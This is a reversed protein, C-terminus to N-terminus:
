CRRDVRTVRPLSTFTYKAGTRVARVFDRDRLVSEVWSCVSQAFEQTSVTVHFGSPIELGALTGDQYQIDADIRYM